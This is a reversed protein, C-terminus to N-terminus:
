SLLLSKIVKPYLVHEIHHIKSEIEEISENGMIKFSDQDIIKGTDIGEDVFHITVGFVKVGYNFADQIGHAGPFSPLLAPHINVIKNPYAHLLTKGVIRMYGALFVWTINRADLENVIVQEYEEKNRYNKPTFIFTEIQHKKAREIVFASPNDCVLLSIKIPLQDKEIADIIAQFNSGSGSAFVAINFCSNNM